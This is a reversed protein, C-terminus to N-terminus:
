KKPVLTFLTEYSLKGDSYTYNRGTISKDGVQGLYLDSTMSPHPELRTSTFVVSFRGPIEKLDYTRKKKGADDIFSFYRSGNKDTEIVVTSQTPYTEADPDSFKPTSLMFYEGDLLPHESAHAQYVPMALLGLFLAIAILPKM